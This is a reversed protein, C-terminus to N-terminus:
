LGKQTENGLFLTTNINKKRSETLWQDQINHMACRKEPTDDDAGTLHLFGHAIYFALEYDPGNHEHGTEAARQVNVIIEGAMNDAENDAAYNLSIVDTPRDKGFCHLNVPSIQEDDMLVLGTESSILESSIEGAKTHLFDALSQIADLNLRHAKQLNTIPVKM